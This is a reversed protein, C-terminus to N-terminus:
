SYLLCPPYWLHDRCATSIPFDRTRRSNFLWDEFLGMVVSSLRINEVVPEQPFCSFAASYGGEPWLHANGSFMELSALPSRTIFV